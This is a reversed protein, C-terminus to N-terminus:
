SYAGGHIKTIPKYVQPQEKKWRPDNRYIVRKAYALRGLTSWTAKLKKPLMDYIIKDSADPITTWYNCFERLLWKPYKKLHDKAKDWVMLEFETKTM